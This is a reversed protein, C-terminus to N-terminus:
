VAQHKDHVTYCTKIYTDGGWPNFFVVVVIVINMEIMEPYWKTYSDYNSFLRTANQTFPRFIQFLIYSALLKVKEHIM